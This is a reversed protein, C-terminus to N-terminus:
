AITLLDFRIPGSLIAMCAPDYLSQNANIAARFKEWTLPDSEDWTSPNGKKLSDMKWVVIAADNGIPQMLFPHEPFPGDFQFHATNALVTERARLEPSTSFDFEALDTKFGQQRLLQRTEAVARGARPDPSPPRLAAVLGALALAVLVLWFLKGPRLKM